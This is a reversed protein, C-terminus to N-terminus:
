HEEEDTRLMKRVQGEFVEIFCGVLNGLVHGIKKRKLQKWELDVKVEQGGSGM